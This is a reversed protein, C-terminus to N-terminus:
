CPVFHSDEYVMDEDEDELAEDSAGQTAVLTDTAGPIAEDGFGFVM